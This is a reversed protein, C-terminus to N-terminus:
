PVIYSGHARCRRRRGPRRPQPRHKKLSCFLAPSGNPMFNQTRKETSADHRSCAASGGAGREPKQDYGRGLLDSNRLSIPLLHGVQGPSSRFLLHRTTVLAGMKRTNRGPAADDRNPFSKRRPSRDWRDVLTCLQSFIRSYMDIRKKKLDQYLIESCRAEPPQRRV